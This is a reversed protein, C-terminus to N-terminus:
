YVHPILKLNPSNIDVGLATLAPKLMEDIMEQTVSAPGREAFEVILKGNAEFQKQLQPALTKKVYFETFYDATIHKVEVVTGDKLVLDIKNKAVDVVEFKALSEDYYAARKIQFLWGDKLIQDTNPHMATRLVQVVGNYVEDNRSPSLLKRLGADNEMRNLMNFLQRDFGPDTCKTSCLRRLFRESGAEPFGSTFKVFKELTRKSAQSTWGNFLDDSVMGLTKKFAAIDNANKSFQEALVAMDKGGIRSCLKKLGAEAAPDLKRIIETVKNVCDSNARFLPRALKFNGPTSGVAGCIALLEDSFKTVDEPDVNKALVGVGDMGEDTLTVGVKAIKDGVNDVALLAEDGLSTGGRLIRGVLASGEDFGLKLLLGAKARTVFAIFDDWLSRTGTFINSVLEFVAHSTSSNQLADGAVRIVTKTLDLAVDFAEALKLGNLVVRFATAAKRFLIRGLTAVADGVFSTVAVPIGIGTLAVLDGVSGIIGLISLAKIWNSADMALTVIDPIAGIVPLLSIIVNAALLAPNDTDGTLIAEMWLLVNQPTVAAFIKLSAQVFDLTLQDFFELGAVILIGGTNNIENSEEFAGIIVALNQFGVSDMQKQSAMRATKIASSSLPWEVKERLSPATVFRALALEPLAPSNHQQYYATADLRHALLATLGDLEAKAYDADGSRASVALMKMQRILFLEAVLGRNQTEVIVTQLRDGAREAFHEIFWWDGEGIEASPDNGWMANLHAAHILLRLEDEALAQMEADTGARPQLGNSQRVAIQYGLLQVALILMGSRTDALEDQTARFQALRTNLNGNVLGRQAVEVAIQDIQAQTFGYSLLDARVDAPIGAQRASYLNSVSASIQDVQASAVGQAILDTRMQDPIGTDAAGAVDMAAPFNNGIQEIGDAVDDMAGLAISSKEAVSLARDIVDEIYAENLQNIPTSQVVNVYNLLEASETVAGSVNDLYLDGGRLVLDIAQSQPDKQLSRAAVLAPESALVFVLAALAANRLIVHLRYTKMM